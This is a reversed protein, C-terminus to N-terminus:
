VKKSTNIAIQDLYNLGKGIATYIASQALGVCFWTVAPVYAISKWQNGYGPDGPLVWFCVIVGGMFSAAALLYFIYTIMPADYTTAIAVYQNDLNESPVQELASTITDKKQSKTSKKYELSCLEHTVVGNPHTHRTIMWITKNCVPCLLDSM